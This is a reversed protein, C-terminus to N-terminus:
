GVAPLLQVTERYFGHANRWFTLRTPLRKKWSNHKDGHAMSRTVAEPVLRRGEIVQVGSCECKVPQCNHTDRCGDGRGLKTIGFRSLRQGFALDDDSAVLLFSDVREV